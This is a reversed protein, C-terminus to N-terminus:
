AEIKGGNLKHQKINHKSSCLAYIDCATRDHPVTSGDITDTTTTTATHHLVIYKPGAYVVWLTSQANKEGLYLILIDRSLQM